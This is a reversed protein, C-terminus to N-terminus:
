RWSSSSTRESSGLEPWIRALRAMDVKILHLLELGNRLVGDWEIEIGHRRAASPSLRRENLLQLAYALAAQRAAFARAGASGVLGLAIGKPTLRFDANDARLTLRYEARSTFM